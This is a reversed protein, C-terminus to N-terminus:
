RRSFTTNILKQIIVSAVLVIAAFQWWLFQKIGIFFLFTFIVLFHVFFISYSNQSFFMISIKLFPRDFFGKKAFIFLITTLLIGYSLFNLNPPYKNDFFIVSHNTLVLALKSTLFVFLFVFISLPLFWAEDEHKAFFWSYFLILSWPLWMTLKYNLAPTTFLFVLSSLLSSFFFFSFLVRGKKLLIFIPSLFALYIFLLVAWNIELGTTTLTLHRILFSLIITKQNKLFVLTFFFFLYIWYPVLLRLLRKKEFSLFNLKEHTSNKKFFLYTSCFVFTPVAFQGFNWVAHALPNSLFYSTTHILIIVFIGIGRLIDIEFLRNSKNEM